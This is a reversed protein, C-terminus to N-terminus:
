LDSLPRDAAGVVDLELKDIVLRLSRNLAKLSETSLGELAQPLVGEAPSPACSVTRQGRRTLKLGVRRQDSSVRSRAVLKAKVLKEVLLSCTSQHISIVAALDSIGISPTRAIEQLIWLQSGSVGCRQEVSRFHQRVSGYIVRFSRLAAMAQGNRGNGNARKGPRRLRGM